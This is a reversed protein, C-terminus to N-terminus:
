LSYRRGRGSLRRFEDVSERTKEFLESVEFRVNREVRKSIMTIPFILNDTEGFRLARSRGLDDNVVVWDLGLHEAMVDGLAVGLAQLEYSQEGSLHTRELIDQIVRLDNLSRGTTLPTGVHRRALQDVVARQARMQRQELAGLPQIRERRNSYFSDDELRAAANGFGTLFAIPNGQSIESMSYYFGIALALGFVTLVLQRKAGNASRPKRTKRAKPM